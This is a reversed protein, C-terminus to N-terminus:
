GSPPSRHRWTILESLSASPISITLPPFSASSQGATSGTFADTLLQNECIDATLDRRPIASCLGAPQSFDTDSTCDTSRSARDAVLLAPPSPPPSSPPTTLSLIFTHAPQSPVHLCCDTRELRPVNRASVRAKAVPSKVAAVVSRLLDGCRALLWGGGVDTLM